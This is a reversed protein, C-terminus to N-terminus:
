WDHKRKKDEAPEGEFPQVGTAPYRDDSPSFLRSVAEWLYRIFQVPIQFVKQLFARIKTSSFM